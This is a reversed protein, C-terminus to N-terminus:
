VSDSGSDAHLNLTTCSPALVSLKVKLMIYTQETAM